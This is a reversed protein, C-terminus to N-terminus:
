VYTLWDTYLGDGCQYWSSNRGDWAVREWGRGASVGQVNTGGIVRRRCEGAGCAVAEFFAQEFILPLAAPSPFIYSVCRQQSPSSNWPRALLREPCNVQAECKRSVSFLKTKDEIKSEQSRLCIRQISGM